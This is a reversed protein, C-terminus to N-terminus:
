CKRINRTMHILERTIGLMATKPALSWLNTFAYLVFSLFSKSLFVYGDNKALEERGEIGKGTGDANFREKHDTAVQDSREEQAFM